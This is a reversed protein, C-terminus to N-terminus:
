DQGIINCSNQDDAGDGMAIDESDQVKEEGGEESAAQKQKYMKKWEEWREPVKEAEEALDKTPLGYRAFRFLDRALRCHPQYAYFTFDDGVLEDFLTKLERQEATPPEDNAKSEDEDGGEFWSRIWMPPKCFVWSPAFCALDWDIIGTIKPVAAQIELMINRPELDCHTLCYFDSWLCDHEDMEKAVAM